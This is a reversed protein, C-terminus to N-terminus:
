RLKRRSLTDTIAQQLRQLEDSTLTTRFWGKGFSSTREEDFLHVDDEQGSMPLAFAVRFKARTGEIEVQGEVVFMQISVTM